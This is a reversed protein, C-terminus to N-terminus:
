KESRENIYKVAEDVTIVSAGLKENGTKKVLLEPLYAIAPATLGIKELERYNSFVKRTADDYLIKGDSMVVLRDVYKAVDEMSHSVLVITIGLNKQMNKLLELIEERGRPDLGATPEDLVLIEPEMALVGAIAVRRKEGGSIEFPSNNYMDEPIGVQELAKRAKEKALEENKWKNLPGFAVDELISSKFLQYEPYQFVLGVEKRLESLKYSKDYINNGKYAIIGKDAKILGNLHQVLTSKGSGTHGIIGIFQNKYISLNVDFLGSHKRDKHVKNYDYSVNELRLIPEDLGSASVSIENAKWNGVELNAIEVNEIETKVNVSIEELKLRHYIEDALEEVTLVDKKINVQLRAAVETAMPVDLRLEKMRDVQAFIERPTGAMVVKGRDMVFVKDANVVEEMYHTILVITVGEKKNLERVTNLVEKRGIPDLMATPEDMVICKPGMALIGAIAVRQKQGGSLRHPSQERYELMGVQALAKEVRNWIERTEIGINEPGFGVEEEVTTGVIQNDPNQFVMGVVQRIDWINKSDGADMEGIYLKGASPELLCNLHKAFTSKGSGNHGLIVVFQGEEITLDLGDLAKGAEKKNGNDDIEYVKHELGEACIIDLKRVVKKCINLFASVM